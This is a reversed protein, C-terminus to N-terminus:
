WNKIKKILSHIFSGKDELKYQSNKKVYKLKWVIKDKINQFYGTVIDTRNNKLKNKGNEIGNLHKSWQLNIKVPM